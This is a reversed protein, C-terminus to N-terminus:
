RGSAATAPAQQAGAKGPEAVTGTNVMCVKYADDLVNLTSFRNGGGVDSGLAM